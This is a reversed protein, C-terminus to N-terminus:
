QATITQTMDLTYNGAATFAPITQSVGVGTVYGNWIDDSGAAANLLTIVDVSGSVYTASSGLTIGTSTAPSTPTLTGATPNITLQGSAATAANYPYTKVGDEWTSSIGNTAALTLTFGSNSAGPNDATIRQTNSGFTGTSTQLSTSVSVASMAFSPSGVVVGSADRISTSLVGANIQQTLQSDATTAAFVAGPVAVLAGVMLAYTSLKKVNM